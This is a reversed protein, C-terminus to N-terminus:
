QGSKEGFIEDVIVDIEPCQNLTNLTIVSLVLKVIGVKIKSIFRVFRIRDHNSLM